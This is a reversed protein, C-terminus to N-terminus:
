LKITSLYNKGFIYYLTFVYFSLRWVTAYSLDYFVILHTM